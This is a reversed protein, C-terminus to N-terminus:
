VGARGHAHRALIAAMLWRAVDPKPAPGYEQRMGDRGLLFVHNTGSGFANSSGGPGVQNAVILDLHKAMLKALAHKEVEETEAAFGVVTQAPTKASSLIKLIDPVPEFEVVRALSEKKVKRASYHCPRMDCVAATKILIDCAPFLESARALMEEATGVAHLVAGGPAPLAVPGSVLEVRCGAALAAAALAYGMKGTSPNSIYRVPDFYERTPGATILCRLPPTM